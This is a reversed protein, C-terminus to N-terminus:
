ILADEVRKLAEKKDRKAQKIEVKARENDTLPKKIQGAMPFPWVVKNNADKM